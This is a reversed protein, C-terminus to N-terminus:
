KEKSKKLYISEKRKENGKQEDKRNMKRKKNKRKDLLRSPDLPWKNNGIKTNEM